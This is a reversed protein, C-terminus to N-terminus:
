RQHHGRRDTRSRTPHSSRHHSRLPPPRLTGWRANRHGVVAPFTPRETRAFAFERGPEAVTVVPRNHRAPRNAVKNRAKFRAGVVPATAGDLWVCELIEPSLEPTRTVDAVVAYVEEPRCDMHRQVTDTALEQIM